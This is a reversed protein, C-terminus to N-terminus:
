SICVDHRRLTRLRKTNSLYRCRSRRLQHHHAAPIHRARFTAAAPLAEDSHRHVARSGRDRSHVRAHPHLRSGVAQPSLAGSAFILPAIFAIFSIFESTTKRRM